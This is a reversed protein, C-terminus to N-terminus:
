KVKKVIPSVSFEDNLFGGAADRLTSFFRPLSESLSVLHARSHDSIQRTYHWSPGKEGAGTSLPPMQLHRAELM